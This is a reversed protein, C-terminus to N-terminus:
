GRDIGYNLDWGPISVVSPVTRRLRVAKVPFRGSNRRALHDPGLVGVLYSPFCSLSGLSLATTVKLTSGRRESFGQDSSCSAHRIRCIQPLTDQLADLAYTSRCSTGLARM